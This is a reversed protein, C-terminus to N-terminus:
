LLSYRNCFVHSLSGEANSKQHNLYFMCQGCFISKLFFISQEWLIPKRVKRLLEDINQQKIKISSSYTLKQQKRQLENQPKTNM